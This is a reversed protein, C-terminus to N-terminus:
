RGGAVDVFSGTVYAAADSLLWAIAQAVEEAEGGRGMPVTDALREVRGPEGGLTHIDTRIIGARVGNVRIGDRAVERGLGVTMTDLAGKTAAYDIYEGPSGM